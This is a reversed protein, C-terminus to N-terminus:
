SGRLRDPHPTRRSAPPERRDGRIVRKVDRGTFAGLLLSTYRTADEFRNGFAIRRGIRAGAAPRAALV